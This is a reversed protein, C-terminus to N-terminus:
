TTIGLEALDNKLQVSSEFLVGKLGLEQASEINRLSDDILLSEDPRSKLNNLIIKFAKKDPKCVLDDFSYSIADFLSHYNFKEECFEVWERTHVSLLGLKYKKRLGIIIKRVGEIEAFNKRVSKKLDGVSLDWGKKTLVAEWYQEESIKGLYLDDLESMFFDKAIIEQSYKGLYYESGVLGKILVDSLDFIITNIKPM